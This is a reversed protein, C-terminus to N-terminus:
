YSPMLLKVGSARAKFDKDVFPVFFPQYWSFIRQSSLQELFSFPWSFSIARTHAHCWGDIQGILPPRLGPALPRRLVLTRMHRDMDDPLDREGAIQFATM